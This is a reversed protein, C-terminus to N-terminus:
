QMVMQEQRKRYYWMRNKHLAKDKESRLHNFAMKNLSSKDEKDVHTESGQTVEASSYNENM